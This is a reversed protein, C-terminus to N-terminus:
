TRSETWLSNIITSMDDGIEYYTLTNLQSRLLEVINSKRVNVILM